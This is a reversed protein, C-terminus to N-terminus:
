YFSLFIGVLWSSSPTKFSLPSSSASYKTKTLSANSKLLQQNKATPHTVCM